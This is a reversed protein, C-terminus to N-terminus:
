CSITKLWYAVLKSFFFSQQSTAVPVIECHPSTEFTFFSREREL